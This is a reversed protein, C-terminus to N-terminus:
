EVSVKDGKLHVIKQGESLDVTQDGALLLQGSRTLRVRQEGFELTNTGGSYNSRFTILQKGSACSIM